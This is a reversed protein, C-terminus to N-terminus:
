DCVNVIILDTVGIDVVYQDSNWYGVEIFMM